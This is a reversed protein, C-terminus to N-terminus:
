VREIPTNAYLLHQYTIDNLSEQVLVMDTGFKHDYILNSKSNLPTPVQLDIPIGDNGIFYSRIPITPGFLKFPDGPELGGLKTSEQGTEPM